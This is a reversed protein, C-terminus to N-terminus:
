MLFTDIIEEVIHIKHMMFNCLLMSVFLIKNDSFKHLKYIENTHKIWWPNIDTNQM